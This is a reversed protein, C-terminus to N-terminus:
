KPLRVAAPAVGAPLAVLLARQDDYAFDPLGSPATTASPQVSASPVISAVV